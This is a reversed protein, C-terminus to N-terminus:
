RRVPGPFGIGPLYAFLAYIIMVVVVFIIIGKVLTKYPEEIPLFGLLWVLFGVVVLMLVIQLM